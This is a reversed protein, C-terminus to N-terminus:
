LQMIERWLEDPIDVGNELHQKRNSLARQGPYRIQDNMSKLHDLTEQILKDRQYETM